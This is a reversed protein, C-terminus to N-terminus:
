KSSINRRASHSRHERKSGLTADTLSLSGRTGRRGPTGAEGPPKELAKQGQPGDKM